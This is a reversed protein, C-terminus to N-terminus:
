RGGALAVIRRAREIVPRDIMEGGFAKAGDGSAAASALVGRAWAVEKESPLFGANIAAIQRPHIALKAGFGFRRAREVDRALGAADDLATAVGDIPAPLGAYRSALILAARVANTEEGDGAMGSDLAFDVSGFALRCVVPSSAVAHIEVVGAVSEILAIARGKGSMLGSLAAVSAACAKPLMLGDIPSSLAMAIDDAFWPTDAGNIRVIGRGGGAFWQAVSARARAKDAAGVADELDLINRDAGSRAAKEFRDPRDGPVFLYSRGDERRELV